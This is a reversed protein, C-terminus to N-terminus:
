ISRKQGQGESRVRWHGVVGEANIRRMVQLTGRVLRLVM